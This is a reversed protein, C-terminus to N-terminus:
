HAADAVRWEVTGETVWALMSAWPGHGDDPNVHGAGPLEVAPVGWAEAVEALPERRYPDSARALMTVPCGWRPAPDTAFAWQELGAPPRVLGPPAVLLVRDVAPAEGAAELHRWLVTGLSHAIVIREGDGLMELEALALDRWQGRDPADPTPFQPYQVPIRRARLEEALWWMWHTRPRTHQFGHLLLVRATMAGMTAHRAM